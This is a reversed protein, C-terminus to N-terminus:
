HLASRFPVLTFQVSTCPPEFAYNLVETAVISTMVGCSILSFNIIMCNCANFKCICAHVCLILIQATWGSGGSTSVGSTYFRSTYLTTNMICHILLLILPKDYETSTNGTTFIVMSFSAADLQLNEIISDITHTDCRCKM